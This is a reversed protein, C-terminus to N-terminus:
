NYALTVQKAKILFDEGLTFKKQFRKSVGYYYISINKGNSTIVAYTNNKKYAGLTYEKNGSNKVIENAIFTIRQNDIDSIDGNMVTSGELFDLTKKTPSGQANMSFGVFAFLVFFLILKKM